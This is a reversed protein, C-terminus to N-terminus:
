EEKTSFNKLHSKNDEPKAPSPDTRIIDPKRYKDLSIRKPTFNSDRKSNM